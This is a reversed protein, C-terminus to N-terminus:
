ADRRRQHHDPDALEAVSECVVGCVSYRHPFAGMEKLTAPDYESM